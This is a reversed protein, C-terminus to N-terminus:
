SKWTFKGRIGLFGILPIYLPQLIAWLFYIPFDMTRNFLKSGLFIALGDFVAKITMLGIWENGILLSCIILLNFSITTILFGFFLPENGLALKANSSWRIRQNFFDNVSGMASTKVFSNPDIHLIAPKLKSISQVLYMDDGSIRDKVEEFGGITEFDKKFFALNQGTGSWFLGWGSFGANAIIISLFDIKQYRQFFSENQLSIESFGISISEKNIVSYAMSSVWLKGVRCDADTLVIIEGVAAEIGRSLANKKPTMDKSVQDITIVKIFAYNNSADDLIAATDDNSRDNVIVVELKDLPYEQSILDNILYQIHDEENRAAVVVSVSPLTEYSKIELETHKFLGSIMLTMFGIYFLVCISIVLSM